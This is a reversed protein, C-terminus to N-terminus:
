LIYEKGLYIAICKETPIDKKGQSSLQRGLVNEPTDMEIATIYRRHVNNGCVFVAISPTPSVLLRKRWFTIDKRLEVTKEGSVIKDFYIRRIRFSVKKLHMM